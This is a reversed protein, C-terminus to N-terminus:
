NPITVQIGDARAGLNPLVWIPDATNRIPRVAADALGFLTVTPHYGGFSWVWSENSITRGAGFGNQPHGPDTYQFLHTGPIPLKPPLGRAYTGVRPDHVHGLIRVGWYPHWACGLTAPHEIDLNGLWSIHMNKEGLMVTNSTGDIVQGLTVSSKLRSIVTPPNTNASQIRPMACEVICGDMWTQGSVCAAYDTPMGGLMAATSPEGGLGTQGSGVTCAASSRRTPCLLNATKITHIANAQNNPANIFRENWNIADYAAKQEIYPGILVLWSWGVRIGTPNAAGPAGEPPSGLWNYRESCAPPLEGSNVDSYLHCGLSLQRLNNSCQTRRGAERAAQVAPLLLAILVGIIAIVVLLEVLTFGRRRSSFM